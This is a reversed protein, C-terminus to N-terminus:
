SSPPRGPRLADVAALFDAPLPSEFRLEAGSAPHTFGLTAAHLLLRPCALPHGGAALFDRLYVKEGVVPHGSEALHIRIQHTRGTELRVRCLTAGALTELPAVHTVSPKGREPRTTSGRLGDGRDKVLRSALRGAPVRGHAVCLYSRELDHSRLQRSLAEAADHNRAFMLLGSTARDLRHVVLLPPPPGSGRHLARRVLDVATGTEGEEFPVTALGAPKDVVVVHRDCHVVTPAPTTPRPRPADAQIAVRAAAAARSGPELCLAGDVTVKGSVILRQAERWPLGLRRRLFAALTIGAEGDAVALEHRAGRM